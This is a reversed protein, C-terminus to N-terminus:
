VQGEQEAHQEYWGYVDRWIESDENEDVITYYQRRQLWPAKKDPDKPHNPITQLGRSAAQQQSLPEILRPGGMKPVRKLMYIYERFSEYTGTRLSFNFLGNVYALYVLIDKFMQLAYSPGRFKLYNRIYVGTRPFTAPPQPSGRGTFLAEEGRQQSTLHGRSIAEGIGGMVDGVITPDAKFDLNFPNPRDTMQIIEFDYPSRPRVTKTDKKGVTVELKDNSTAYSRLQKPINPFENALIEEQSLEIQEEQETKKEEVEEEKTEKTEEETPEQKEEQSSVHQELTQRPANRYSVEGSMDIYEARTLDFVKKYKTNQVSYSIVEPLQSYPAVNISVGSTHQKLSESVVVDESNVVDNIGAEMIKSGQVFENSAHEDNVGEMSSFIIIDLPTTGEQADDNAWPGVIFIRELVLRTAANAQETDVDKLTNKVYNFADTITDEVGPLDDWKWIGAM